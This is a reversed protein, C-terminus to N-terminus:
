AAAKGAPALQTDTLFIHADPPVAAWAASADSKDGAGLRPLELDVRHSVGDWPPAVGEVWVCQGLWHHAEYPCM